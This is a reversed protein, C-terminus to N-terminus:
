VRFIFVRGDSRRRREGTRPRDAGSRRAAAVAVTEARRTRIAGCRDLAARTGENWGPGRGAAAAHVEHKAGQGRRAKPDYLRM